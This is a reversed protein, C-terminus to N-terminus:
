EEMRNDRWKRLLPEESLIVLDTHPDYYMFFNYKITLHHVDMGKTFPIIFLIVGCEEGMM